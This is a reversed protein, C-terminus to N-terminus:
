TEDPASPTEEAPPPEAPPVAGSTEMDSLIQLVHDGQEISEDLEFSLKPTYKLVVTRSIHRQFEPAHRQLQDLIHERDQKHDRVSVMVRATRLDSGTVVRTVTVASLDFGKENMVRFLSAALEQQLLENVRVLRKVTM